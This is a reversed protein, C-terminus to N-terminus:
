LTFYYMLPFLVKGYMEAYKNLTALLVIDLSLVWMTSSFFHCPGSVTQFRTQLCLTRVLSSFLRSKLIWFFRLHVPLFTPLSFLCNLYADCAVCTGWSAEKNVFLLHEDYSFIYLSVSFLILIVWLGVAWLYKSNFIQYTDKWFKKKGHVKYTHIKYVIGLIAVQHRM